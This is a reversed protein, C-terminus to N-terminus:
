ITDEEAQINRPSIDRGSLLLSYLAIFLLNLLYDMFQIFNIFVNNHYSDRILSVAPRDEQGGLMGRGECSFWERGQMM